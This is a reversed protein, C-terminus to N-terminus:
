FLPKRIFGTPARNPPDTTGNWSVYLTGYQKGSELMINYKLVPGCVGEAPVPEPKGWTISEGLASRLELFYKTMASAGYTFIPKEPVLGYELDDIYKLQISENKTKWSDALKVYDAIRKLEAIEENTIERPSESFCKYCYVIILYADDDDHILGSDHARLDKVIVHELTHHVAGSYVITHFGLLTGIATEDCTDFDLGLITAISHAIKTASSRGGPFIKRVTESNFRRLTLDIIRAMSNDKKFRDFLGM